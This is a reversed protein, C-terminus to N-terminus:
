VFIGCSACVAGQFFSLPPNFALRHIFGSVLETAKVFMGRSCAVQDELDSLYDVSCAADRLKV